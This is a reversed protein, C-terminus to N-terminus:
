ANRAIRDIALDARRSSPRVPEPLNEALVLEDELSQEQAQATAASV